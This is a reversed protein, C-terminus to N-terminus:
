GIRALDIAARDKWDNLMYDLLRVMDAPRSAWVSLSLSPLARQALGARSLSIREVDGASAACAKTSLMMM